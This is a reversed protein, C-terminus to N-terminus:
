HTEASLPATRTACAQEAGSQRAMSARSWHTDKGPVSELKAVIVGEVQDLLISPPRGPRPEDHLGKLRRAIFRAQPTGVPYGSALLSKEYDDRSARYIAFGWTTAPGAYRLRAAVGYVDGAVDSYAVFGGSDSGV